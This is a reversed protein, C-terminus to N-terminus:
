FSGKSKSLPITYIMNIPLHSRWNKPYKALCISVVKVYDKENNNVYFKDIFGTNKSYFCYPVDWGLTIHPRFNLFKHEVPMEEIQVISKFYTDLLYHYDSLLKYSNCSKLVELWLLSPRIHTPKSVEVKETLPTLKIRKFSEIVFNEYAWFRGKLTIHVPFNLAVYNSTLKALQMQFSKIRNASHLDVIAFIAFRELNSM